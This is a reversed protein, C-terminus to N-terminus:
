TDAPITSRANLGALYAQATQVKWGQDLARQAKARMFTEFVTGTPSTCVWSGCRPGLRPLEATM